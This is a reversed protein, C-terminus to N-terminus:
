NLLLNPLLLLTQNKNLINETKERQRWFGLLIKSFIGKRRYFYVFQKQLLLIWKKQHMSRRWLLMKQRQLIPFCLIMDLKYLKMCGNRRKISTERFRRFYHWRRSRCLLGCQWQFLFNFHSKKPWKWVSHCKELLCYIICFGNLHFLSMETAFIFIKTWVSNKSLLHVKQM